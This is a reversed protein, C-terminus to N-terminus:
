RKRVIVLAHDALRVLAPIALRSELGDLATLLAAPLRRGAGPFSAAGPLLLGLPELRVIEFGRSFPALIARVDFVQVRTRRGAYQIPVSPAHFRSHIVHPPLPMRTWRLWVTQWSGHVAATFVARGGAKLLRDCTRAFAAIGPPHDAAHFAWVADCTGLWGTPPSAFSGHVCVLQRREPRRRALRIMGSDTDLALMRFGRRALLASDDGAGCGLDAVTAGAPLGATLHRMARRKMLRIVPDRRRRAAWREFARM